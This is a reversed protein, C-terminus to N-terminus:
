KNATISDENKMEAKMSIFMQKLKQFSEESLDHEMKCAEEQALKDDVGASILLEYFFCHKEYIEEAREKGKSTLRLIGRDDKQIMKEDILIKVMHTISPKRYGLFDALNVSRVEPIKRQLLYLAELYNEASEHLKMM